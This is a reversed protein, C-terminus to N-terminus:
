TQTESTDRLQSATLRNVLIQLLATQSKLQANQVTLKRITEIASKNEGGVSMMDAKLAKVEALANERQRILLDIVDTEARDKALELRDKSIRRLFVFAGLVASLFAGGLFTTLDLTV